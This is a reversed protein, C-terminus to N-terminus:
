TTVRIDLRAIGSFGVLQPEYAEDPKRGAGKTSPMPSLMCVARSFHEKECLVLNIRSPVHGPGRMHSRIGRPLPVTGRRFGAHSATLPLAGRHDSEWAGLAKFLELDGGGKMERM